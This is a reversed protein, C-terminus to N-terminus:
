CRGKRIGGMHQSALVMDSGETDLAYVSLYAKARDVNTDVM